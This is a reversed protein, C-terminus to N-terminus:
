IFSLYGGQLMMVPDRFSGRVRTTHGGLGKEKEKGPLSKNM